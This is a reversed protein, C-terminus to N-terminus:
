FNPFFTFCSHLAHDVILRVFFYSNTKQYIMKNHLSICYIFRFVIILEIAKMSLISLTYTIYCVISM